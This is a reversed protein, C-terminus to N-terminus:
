AIKKAAQEVKKFKIIQEDIFNMYAIKGAEKNGNYKESQVDKTVKYELGKIFVDMYKPKIKRKIENGLSSALYKDTCSEIWDKYLKIIIKADGGGTPIEVREFSHTDRSYKTIFMERCTKQHYDSIMEEYIKLQFTYIHFQCQSVTEFPAKFMTDYQSHFSFQKNTKHDGIGFESPSYDFYIDTMGALMDKYLLMKEPVIVRGKNYKIKAFSNIIHSKMEDFSWHIEYEKFSHKSYPYKEYCQPLMKKVEMFHFLAEKNLQLQKAPLFNQYKMLFQEMVIHVINGYHNAIDTMDQWMKSTQEISMIKFSPTLYINKLKFEKHYNEAIKIKEILSLENTLEEISSYYESNWRNQQLPKYSQFEEGKRNTKTISPRFNKYNVYLWLCRYIEDNTYNQPLQDVWAFFNKYQTQLGQKAGLGDFPQEILHLCGTVSNYFKGTTKNVYIHHEDELVVPSESFKKYLQFDM